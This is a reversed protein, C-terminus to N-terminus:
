INRSDKGSRSASHFRWRPTIDVDSSKGYYFSMRQANYIEHGKMYAEDPDFYQGFQRMFIIGIGASSVVINIRGPRQLDSENEKKWIIVEKEKDDVLRQGRYSSINTIDLDRRGATYEAEIISKVVREEMEPVPYDHLRQRLSRAGTRHMSEFVPLLKERYNVLYFFQHLGQWQEDLASSVRRDTIRNEYSRNHNMGECLADATEIQRRNTGTWVIINHSSVDSILLNSDPIFSGRDRRDRKQGRIVHTDNFNKGVEAIIDRSGPVISVDKDLPIDDPIKGTKKWQSFARNQVAELHRFYDLESIVKLM